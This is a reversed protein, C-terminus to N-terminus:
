STGTQWNSTASGPATRDFKYPETAHLGSTADVAGSVQVQISNATITGFGLTTGTPPTADINFPGYSRAASLNGAGDEAKIYINYNAGDALSYNAVSATSRTLWTGGDEPSTNNVAWWYGAIPTTVTIPKVERIEVDDLWVDGTNSTHYVHVYLKATNAPATAYAQVYTWGSIGSVTGTGTEGMFQDSSDLYALHLQVSGASLNTKFWGSILYTKGPSAGTIYITSHNEGNLNTAKYSKAGSHYVSTDISYTGSWGTTDQEFGANTVLNSRNGPSDIANVYYYYNNGNSLPELWNFDLTNDSSWVGSGFAPTTTGAGPVDPALTDGSNAAIPTFRVSDFTQTPSGDSMIWLYMNANPGINYRKLLTGNQYLEVFGNKVFVKKYYYNQEASYTGIQSQTGDPFTDEYVLGSWHHFLVSNCGSPYTDFQNDTMGFRAGASTASSKMVIELVGSGYKQNSHMWQDVGTLAVTGNSYTPTTGTGNVWAGTNGGSFDDYFGGFNDVATQNNM